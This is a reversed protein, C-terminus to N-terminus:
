PTERRNRQILLMQQRDRAIDREFATRAPM